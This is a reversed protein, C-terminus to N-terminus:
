KLLDVVSESAPDWYRIATVVGNSLTLVTVKNAEQPYPKLLNEDDGLIIRHPYKRMKPIAFFRGIGPMGYINAVYVAKQKTLFDAGQAALAGNAKKGTEMDFSVLLYKTKAAQFEYAQDHQDNAKFATVKSGKKYLDAMAVTTSLSLILVSNLITQLLKM